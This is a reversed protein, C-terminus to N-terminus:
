YIGAISKNGNDVAYQETLINWFSEEMKNVTWSFFIFKVMYFERFTYRRFYQKFLIEQFQCYCHTKLVPLAEFVYIKKSKEILLNRQRPEEGM